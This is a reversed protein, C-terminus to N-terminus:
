GSKTPMKITQGPIILHEAGDAWGNADVIAQVTTGTKSAILSLYDGAEVVYTSGTSATSTATTDATSSDTTSDTSAATTETTVAPATAGEPLVITDGPFIPHDQGDSWENVDVISQITTGASKAIKALYDGAVVTYTLSGAVAGSSGSSSDTAADVSGDASSTTTTGGDAPTASQDATPQAITSSTTTPAPAVTVFDTEVLPALTSATTAGTGASGVCGTLPALGIVGLGVLAFTSRIKRM